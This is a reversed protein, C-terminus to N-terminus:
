IYKEIIEDKKNKYKDLYYDSFSNFFLLHNWSFHTTILSIPFLIKFKMESQNWWEFINMNFINNESKFITILIILTSFIAGLVSLTDKINNIADMKQLIKAEEKNLKLFVRNNLDKIENVKYYMGHKRYFLRENKNIFLKYAINKELIILM